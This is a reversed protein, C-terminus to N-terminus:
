PKTGQGRVAMGEIGQVLRGRRRILYAGESSSGRLEDEGAGSPAHGPLKGALVRQYLRMFKRSAGDDAWVSSFRLIARDRSATELLDFSGGRWAPALARAEEAGTYQEILIRWDLEGVAGETTIKYDNQGPFAMLPSKEPKWGSLWVEPHLIERATAPPRRMVETFARKGLRGIAAQQFAVGAAYPFMLTERMYLPATEFVPFMGAALNSGASAMMAIAAPNSELSMGAKKLQADLMLWTAQGEAVALRALRAEDSKPGDLFRTLDFNQDGLAHALEHVLVIEGMVDSAGDVLLLRKKRHDYVAAAQEGLLDVTAARLDYDRPIFGFKKLALEDARIEEPKVNEQIQADIWAKWGDRSVIEVRVPRARKFGTTESLASVISHIESASPPVPAAGLFFSLALVSGLIRNLV